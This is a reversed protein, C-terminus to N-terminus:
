KPIKFIKPGPKFAGITAILKGEMINFIAAVIGASSPPPPGCAKLEKNHFVFEVPQRLKTQYNKFDETTIIGGGELIEKSLNEAIAGQYFLQVPDEANALLQLTKGLVPRRM